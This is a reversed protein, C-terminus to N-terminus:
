DAYSVIKRDSYRQMRTKAHSHEASSGEHDGYDLSESTSDKPQRDIRKSERSASSQAELGPQSGIRTKGEDIRAPEGAESALEPGAENESDRRRAEYEADDRELQRARLLAHVESHRFIKVQDDTLTRKM